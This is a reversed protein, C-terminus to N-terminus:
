KSGCCAKQEKELKAKDCNVNVIEEKISKEYLPKKKITTAKSYTTEKQLKEALTSFIKDINEKDSDDKSSVEWFPMNFRDAFKKGASTEVRKLKKLDSKNGILIKVVNEPVTYHKYEEAWM